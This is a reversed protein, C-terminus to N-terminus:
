FHYNTSPAFIVMFENPSLPGSRFLSPYFPSVVAYNAQMCGVRVPIAPRLGHFPCVPFEHHFSKFLAKMKGAPSFVIPMPAFHPCFHPM